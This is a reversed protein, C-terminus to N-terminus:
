LSPNPLKTLNKPLSRDATLKQKNLKKGSKNNLRGRFNNGRKETSQSSRNKM